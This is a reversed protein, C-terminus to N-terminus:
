DKLSTLLDSLNDENEKFIDTEMKTVIRKLKKHFKNILVRGANTPISVDYHFKEIVGTNKILNKGVINIGYSREQHTIIIFISFKNDEIKKLYLKNDLPNTHLETEPDILIDTVIKIVKEQISTLNTVEPRELRVSFKKLKFRYKSVIRSIKKLM